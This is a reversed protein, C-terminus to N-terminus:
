RKKEIWYQIPHPGCQKTQQLRFKERNRAIKRALSKMVVSVANRPNAIKWDNTSQRLETLEISTILSGDKPMLEFLERERTGYAKKYKGKDTLTFDRSAMM